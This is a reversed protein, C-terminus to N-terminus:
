QKKEKFQGSPGVYRIWIHCRRNEGSDRQTFEWEGVDKFATYMGKRM